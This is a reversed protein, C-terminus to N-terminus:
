AEITSLAIVQGLSSGAPYLPLPGNVLEWSEQVPGVVEWSRLIEPSSAFLSKQGAVAELLVREYADLTRNDDFSLKGEEFVDVSDDRYTIKVYTRKEDLQKGTTLRLTVGAWRPDTSELVLHAFTETQSGVNAVEHQYDEYQARGAKAPDATHVAGLAKERYHPLTEVAVDPPIDMIVLSLLQMLHGQVVDRLAGTQEYFDARGEVGITESAVVDIARISEAGWHHHHNDADVRLRILELAVEKALYHDIRYIQEETFYRSTRGIFDQASAYDFGFPKEFLIKVNPSNIGAEGLLDAIQTAAGPPVSLYILVQEDDHLDIHDKLGEYAPADALDMSYVTTRESLHNEGLTEDLLETANVDRRSVGIISLEQGEGAAVMHELAPLLKRRSLDGTIGFIVLKTKMSVKTYATM